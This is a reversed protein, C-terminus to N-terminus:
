GYILAALASGYLHLGGHKVLYMPIEALYNALYDNDTKFVEKLFASDEFLEPNNIAVSNTIYLGGYPLQAYAVNRILRAYLKMYMEVADKCRKDHARNAFVQQYHEYKMPATDYANQLNLFDYMRLIGGSAGLVKGWSRSGTEKQLYNNMKVELDSQACFDVFSYSLPSPTYVGRTENFLMLGSGLGAGAGVIVKTDRARPKGKHLEVVFRQDIADIGYGVVEFDNIVFIKEIKTHEQIERGDITKPNWPFHTFTIFDKNITTNGPSAICALKITLAPYKAKLYQMVKVFFQTFNEISKSPTKLELVLYPKRDVVKFVGVTVDFINADCGIIYQSKKNFTEPSHVVEFLQGSREAETQAGFFLSSQFCLLLLIKKYM